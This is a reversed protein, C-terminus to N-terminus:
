AATELSAPPHPSAAICWAAPAAGPRAPDALVQLQVPAQPWWALSMAPLVFPPAEGVQLQLAECAFVGAQAHGPRWPRVPQVPWLGGDANRLMLNLDRTPGDILRCGPEAGGDFACAPDGARLAQVREPWVLEVGQGELVAFWRRVGPFASFPGDQLVEAVSLRLQWDGAAPWALLERTIGGGNRWPQEAQESWRVIVPRADSM